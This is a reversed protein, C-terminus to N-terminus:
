RADPPPAPPPGPPPPPPMGQSPPPPPAMGPPPPPPPAQYPYSSRRPVRRGAVPVSHGQAYMCQVYANDYRRQLGYASAEGAGTGALGGFLLGTGAGAAAGRDGGIAAGAAAGLLTGVAASRVGSDVAVQDPTTGGIQGSAYQRCMADDGRFENFSKGSGPMVLMSPGSPMTTCAGLLLAAIPTLRSINLM